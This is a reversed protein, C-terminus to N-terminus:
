MNTPIDIFATEIGFKSKVLDMVAFVGPTESRYHGLTLIVTGSEKAPHFVEHTAEGTILCDLRDDQGIEDFLDPWAGGGSIVGVTKVEQAPDGVFGFPGSSPLTKDLIGALESVTKTGPLVGRFGIQKGHYTGFTRRDTLGIMDSLRANHGFRPNADLPLHAAYLSLANGFLTGFRRGTMGTWRRPEGGWSLGHHVVLLDASEEAAREFVALSADVAFAARVCETGAEVQLGNNSPDGAFRDIRLLEDFYRAVDTIKM